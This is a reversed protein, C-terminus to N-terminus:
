SRRRDGDDEDGPDHDVIPASMPQEAFCGYAVRVSLIRKMREEGEHKRYAADIGRPWRSM